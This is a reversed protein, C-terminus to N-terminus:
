KASKAEKAKLRRERDHVMNSIEAMNVEGIPESFSDYEGEWDDRTYTTSWVMLFVSISDLGVQKGSTDTTAARNKEALEVLYDECGDFFYELGAGQMQEELCCMPHDSIPIFNFGVAKKLFRYKGPPFSHLNGDKKRRKVPDEIVVDDTLKPVWFEFEDLDHMRSGPECIAATAQLLEDHTGLVTEGYM